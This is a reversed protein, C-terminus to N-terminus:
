HAKTGISGSHACLIQLEYSQGNRFYYSYEFFHATGPYAWAGKEGSHRVPKQESPGQSHVPWIQLGSNYREQSLLWQLKPQPNRIGLKPSSSAALPRPHYREFSRQHTGIPGGYYSNKVRKLSIEAKTNWCTV